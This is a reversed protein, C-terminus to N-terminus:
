RLILYKNILKALQHILKGYDSISIYGEFYEEDYIENDYVNLFNINIIKILREQKM